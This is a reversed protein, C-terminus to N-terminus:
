RFFLHNIIIIICFNEKGAIVPNTNKGILKLFLIGDGGLHEDAFRNFIDGEKGILDLKLNIRLHKKLFSRRGRYSMHGLWM